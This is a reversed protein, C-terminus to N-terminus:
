AVEAYRAVLEAQPIDTYCGRFAGGLFTELSWEKHGEPTYRVSWGNGQVYIVGDPWRCVKVSRAMSHLHGGARKSMFTWWHVALDIPEQSWDCAPLRDTVPYRSTGYYIAAEIM